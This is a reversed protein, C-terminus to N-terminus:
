ATILGLKRVPEPTALPVREPDRILHGDGALRRGVTVEDATRARAELEHAGVFTPPQLGDARLRRYAPHDREMQKEEATARAVNPRRTPMAAESVQVRTVKCAFCGEVYSPHTREQHLAM